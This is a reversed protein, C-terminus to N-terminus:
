RADEGDGADLADRRGDKVTRALERVDDAICRASEEIVEAAKVVREDVGEYRRLLQARGMLSTLPNNIKHCLTSLTRMTEALRELRGRREHEHDTVDSLLVVEAGPESRLPRRSVLVTRTGGDRSREIAGDGGSAVDGVLARVEAGIVGEEPVGALRAAARNAHRVRGEGDVVAIGADLAALVADLRRRGREEEALAARLADNSARLSAAATAKEKLAAAQAAFMVLGRMPAREGTTEGADLPADGLGALREEYEDLIRDLLDEVDDSHRILDLGIDHVRCLEELGEGITDEGTADNRTM